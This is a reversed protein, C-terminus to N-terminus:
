TVPRVSEVSKGVVAPAKSVVKLPPTSAKTVLSSRPRSPARRSLRGRRSRRRRRSRCRRRRRPSRRRSPRSALEVSKGVVAPAKSVLRCRCCRRRRSSARRGGARAEDVRGVEAPAAGVGAAADGDVGRPVGVHRPDRVRGIERGRGTGEVRAAVAAGVGEHRLEDAPGPAGAVSVSAGVAAVLSTAVWCQTVAVTSSADPFGVGPM